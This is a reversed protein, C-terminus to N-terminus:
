SARGQLAVAVRAAVRANEELLALNARLSGGGTARAVERLLFPTVAAARIRLRGAERVADAVAVEIEERPLPAPPPVALLAGGAQGLVDWHARLAEAAQDESDVRHSVPVGSAATWFAPLEDTRLGMVPVGLTELWEATAPVDLVAKPGSAVVCVRCRAMEDLDASVDWTTAAGPPVRHVGGIGGTALLRIGARHAAACTASVTTGADAGSAMLPGLDRAGAKAPRRGPDALRELEATGAGVWLDGAVVAVTAPVAGGARVAAACARAAELNEPFPLGQAVVSSELAVVPRGGALAERVEDAMRVHAVGGDYGM